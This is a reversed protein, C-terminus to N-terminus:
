RGGSELPLCQRPHELGLRAMEDADVSQFPDFVRYHQEVYENLLDVSRDKLPRYVSLPIFYKIERDFFLKGDLHDVGHQVDAARDGRFNRLCVKGTLDLFRVRVLDHRLICARMGNVSLCDEWNYHPQSQTLIEPNILITSAASRPDPEYAGQLLIIRYPEGVQPAAMEFGRPYQYITSRIEYATKVLKEVVAVAVANDMVPRAVQQLIPDGEQVVFREM